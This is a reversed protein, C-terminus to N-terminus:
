STVGPSPRAPPPPLAEAPASPRSPLTVGGSVGLLGVSAFPVFTPIMTHALALGCAALALLVGAVLAPIEPKRTLLM